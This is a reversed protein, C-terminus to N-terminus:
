RAGDLSQSNDLNVAPSIKQITPQSDQIQASLIQNGGAKKACLLKQNALEVLEAPDIDRDTQISAVGLPLTMKQRSSNELVIDANEVATRIRQAHAMAQQPNAAPLIIAFEEDGYRGVCHDTADINTGLISAVQVLARDGSDKGFRKNFEKFEDVDAMVVSLWESNESAKATEVALTREVARRNGLGTLFDHTVNQDILNPM